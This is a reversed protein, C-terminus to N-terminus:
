KEDDSQEETREIKIEEVHTKTEPDYYTSRTERVGDEEHESYEKKPEMRSM